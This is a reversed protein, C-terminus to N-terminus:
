FHQAIKLDDAARVGDSNCEHIIRALAGFHLTPLSSRNSIGLDKAPM